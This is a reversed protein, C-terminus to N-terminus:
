RSIREFTYPVEDPTVVPRLLGLSTADFTAHDRRGPASFSATGQHVTGPWLAIVGGQRALARLFRLPNVNLWPQWCLAELDYLLFGGRLRGLLDDTTRAPAPGLGVESISMPAAALAQGLVNLLNRAGEREGEVLCVQEPRAFALLEDRRHAAWLLGAGAARDAIRRETM